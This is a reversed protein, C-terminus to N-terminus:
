IRKVLRLRDVSEGRDDVPTGTLTLGDVELLFTGLKRAGRGDRDGRALPVMAPHSLRTGHLDAPNATQEAGAANIVLGL